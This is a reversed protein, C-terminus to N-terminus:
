YIYKEEWKNWHLNELKFTNKVKIVDKAYGIPILNLPILNDPINLIERVKKLKNDEPYITIWVAGLGLAEATILINESAAACDQIWYAGSVDGDLTKDMNGCVLIVAQSSSLLEFNSVESGLKFILDRNDVVIFMWPQLNFVSSASNGARVLSELNEKSVKKDTFNKVIQRQNIIRIFDNRNGFSDEIYIRNGEGSSMVSDISSLNYQSDSFKNEVRMNYRLLLLLIILLLVLNLVKSVNM